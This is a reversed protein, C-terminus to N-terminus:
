FRMPPLIAFSINILKLFFLPRSFMIDRSSLRSILLSELWSESLSLICSSKETSSLPQLQLKGEQLYKSLLRYESENKFSSDFPISHNANNSKNEDYEHREYYKGYMDGEPADHTINFTIILQNSLYDLSEDLPSIISKKLKKEGEPSFGSAQIRSLSSRRTRFTTEAIDSLIKLVQLYENMNEGGM